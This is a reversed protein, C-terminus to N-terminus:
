AFNGGGGGEVDAAATDGDGSVGYDDADDDTEGGINGCFAM